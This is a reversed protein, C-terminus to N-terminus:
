VRRIAEDIKEANIQTIPTLPPRCEPSKLVKLKHLAYKIGIPSPEEFLVSVLSQLKTWLVYGNALDGKHMTDVLNSFKDPFLHASAIIGGDAGYALSAFFHPDQGALVSFNQPRRTLLEFSQELNGCVDKIGVINHIDALLFATENSVNVASRFPINYIFINKTTLKALHKYHLIVGEQTPKMYYPSGVLYGDIPYEEFAKIVKAIALSNAGNVTLYFPVRGKIRPLTREVLRHIESDNLALFEGTTGFMMLGGLDYDLLYDVLSDHSELDVEGDLFPTVLPVYIGNFLM